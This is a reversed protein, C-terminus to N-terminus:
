QAYRFLISLVCRHAIRYSDNGPAVSYPLLLLKRIEQGIDLYLPYVEMLHCESFLGRQLKEYLFVQYDYPLAEKPSTYEVESMPEPSRGGVYTKIITKAQKRHYCTKDIIWETYATRLLPLDWTSRDHYDYGLLSCVLNLNERFTKETCRNGDELILAMLEKNTISGDQISHDKVPYQHKVESIPKLLKTVQVYQYYRNSRRLYNIYNDYILPLYAKNGRSDTRWEKFEETNHSCMASIEDYAQQVTKRLSNLKDIRCDDDGISFIYYILWKALSYECLSVFMEFVYANYKIRNGMFKLMNDRVCSTTMRINDLFQLLESSVTKINGTYVGASIISDIQLECDQLSVNILHLPRSPYGQDYILKQTLADTLNKNDIASLRQIRDEGIEGASRFFDIDPMSNLESLMKYNRNATMFRKVLDYVEDESMADLPLMHLPSAPDLYHRRFNDITKELSRVENYYSLGKDKSAAEPLLVEILRKRFSLYEKKNTFTKKEM